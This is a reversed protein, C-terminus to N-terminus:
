EEPDEGAGPHVYDGPVMLIAVVPVLNTSKGQIDNSFNAPLTLSM